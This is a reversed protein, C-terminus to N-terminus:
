QLQDHHSMPGFGIDSPSIWQRNRREILLEPLPQLHRELVLAAPSKRRASPRDSIWGREALGGLNRQLLSGMSEDMSHLQAVLPQM